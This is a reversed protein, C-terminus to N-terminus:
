RYKTDISPSLTRQTWFTRAARPLHVKELEKQEKRRIINPRNRACVGDLFPTAVMQAKQYGRAIKEGESFTAAGAVM